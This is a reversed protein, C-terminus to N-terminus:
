VRDFRINFRLNYIAMCNSSCQRYNTWTAFWKTMDNSGNTVIQRWTLLEITDLLQIIGHIEVIIIRLTDVSLLCQLIM